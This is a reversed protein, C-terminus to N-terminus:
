FHTTRPIRRVAGGPEGTRAVQKRELRVTFATWIMV